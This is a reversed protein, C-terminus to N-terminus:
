RPLFEAASSDGKKERSLQSRIQLIKSRSQSSFMKNIESWVQCAHELSSIQVLVERTMSSLLYSLLLQDNAIWTTYAPNEVEKTAKDAKEIRLTAAPQISLGDLIGMLRSGRITPLVQARWVLFNNQTLKESIPIHFMASAVM